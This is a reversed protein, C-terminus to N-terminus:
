TCRLNQDGVDYIVDNKQFHSVKRNPLLAECFKGRLVSALAASVAAQSIAPEQDTSLWEIQTMARARCLCQSGYCRM